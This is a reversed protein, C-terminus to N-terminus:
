KERGSAKKLQCIFDENFKVGLSEAKRVDNWSASYDKKYFYAIARNYYAGGYNPKKKIAESFVSIVSDWERQEFATRKTCSFNQKKAYAAASKKPEKCKSASACGVLGLVCLLVILKKM